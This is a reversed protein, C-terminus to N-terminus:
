ADSKDKYFLQEAPCGIEKQKCYKCSLNIRIFGNGATTLIILIIGAILVAYDFKMIMLAIGIILPILSVLFDATLDKWTM